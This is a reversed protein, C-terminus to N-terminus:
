GARDGVTDPLVANPCPSLLSSGSCARTLAARPPVPDGEGKEEQLIAPLGGLWGLCAQASFSSPVAGAGLEPGFGLSM